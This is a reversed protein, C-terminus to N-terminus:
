YFSLSFFYSLPLFPFLELSGTSRGSSSSGSAPSSSCTAAGPGSALDSPGAEDSTPPADSSIRMKGSNYPSFQSPHSTAPPDRTLNQRNSSKGSGKGKGGSTQPHCCPKCPTHPGSSTKVEIAQNLLISSAEALSVDESGRFSESRPLIDKDSASAPQRPADSIHDAQACLSVDQVATETISCVPSSLSSLTSVNQLTQQSNSGEYCSMWGEAVAVTAASSSSSWLSAMSFSDSSPVSCLPDSPVQQSSTEAAALPDEHKSSSNPSSKQMLKEVEQSRLESTQLCKPINSLSDSQSGAGTVSSTKEAPRSVLSTIQLSAAMKDSVSANSECSSDSSGLESKDASFDMGEYLGKLSDECRDQCKNDVEMEETGVLSNDENLGIDSRIKIADTGAKNIVSIVTTETKESLSNSTEQNKYSSNEWQGDLGCPSNRNEHISDDSKCTHVTHSHTAVLGAQDPDNLLEDNLSTQAQTDSSQGEGRSKSAPESQTQYTQFHENGQVRAELTTETSGDASSKQPVTGVLPHASSESDQPSLDISVNGESSISLRTADREARSGAGRSSSSGFTVSPMMAATEESGVPRNQDLSDPEQQTRPMEAAFTVM